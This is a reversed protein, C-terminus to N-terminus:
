VEIDRLLLPFLADGAKAKGCRCWDVLLLRHSRALEQLTSHAPTEDEHPTVTAALTGVRGGSSRGYLTLNPAVFFAFSDSVCHSSSELVVRSERVQPLASRLEELTLEAGLLPDEVKRRMHIAAFGVGVRADQHVQHIFGLEEDVLDEQDETIFEVQRWDDEHMLLESGDLIPGETPPLENCITPLSYLVESPDVALHKRLRLVLQGSAEYEARTLPEAELVSWDDAGVHLTTDAQFSDPLMSSEVASEAFVQGDADDILTLQIVPTTM